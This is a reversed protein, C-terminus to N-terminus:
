GAGRRVVIRALVLGVLVAVAGPPGGLYGVAGVLIAVAGLRWALGGVLGGRGRGSAVAHDAFRRVGRFFLVGGAVGAVGGIGVAL